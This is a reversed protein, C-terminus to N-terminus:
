EHHTRVHREFCEKGEKLTSCIMVVRGHETKCSKCCLSTRTPTKCVECKRRLVEWRADEREVDSDSDGADGGRRREKRARVLKPDPGGAAAAASPGAQAELGDSLLSEAISRVFERTPMISSPQSNRMDHLYALYADTMCMGIYAGFIRLKWKYTRWKFEVGLCARRHNHVDIANSGGFYDGVFRVRPVKYEVHSYSGDAAQLIRKVVRPDGEETSGCTTIFTKDTKDHWGLAIMELFKDDKIETVGRYAVSYGRPQEHLAKHLAHMPFLSHAQKVVGTLTCGHEALAICTNVSAFGADAIVHVRDHLLNAEELLRLVVAASAAYEGRFPLKAMWKKPGQLELALLIGTQACALNKIEFGSSTPKRPIKTTHGPANDRVQTWAREKGEWHIMSEDVVVTRGVTILGRRCRNFADFLPNVAFWPDESDAPQDDVRFRMCQMIKRFRSLSMRARDGLSPRMAWPSPESGFADELRGPNVLILGLVIGLFRSLEEATLPRRPPSLKALRPSTAEIIMEYVPPFFANWYELPTKKRQLKSPMNGCDSPTRYHITVEDARKFPAFQKLPMAMGDAKWGSVLRKAEEESYGNHTFFALSRQEFVRRSVSPVSAPGSLLTCAVARDKNAMVATPIPGDDDVIDDDSEFCPPENDESATSDGDAGDAQPAFDSM